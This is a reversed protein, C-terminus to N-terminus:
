EDLDIELIAMQFNYSRDGDETDEFLVGIFEDGIYVEASDTKKPRARVGIRPNEFTRRLYREIKLLEDKTVTPGRALHNIGLKLLIPAAGCGTADIL